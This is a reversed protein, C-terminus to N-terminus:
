GAVAKLDAKAKAQCADLYDALDSLMVGRASKPSRPDVRVIPLRIDGTGAKRAQM